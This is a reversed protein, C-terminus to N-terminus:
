ASQKVLRDLMKVLSIRMRNLSASLERIELLGSTSIEKKLNGTSMSEAADILDRVPRTVGMRIIFIGAVTMLVGLVVALIQVKLILGIKREAEAQFLFVARDMANMLPVNKAIVFDVAYRDKGDSDLVKRTHEKFPRWLEVVRELQARIVDTGAPPTQRFRTMELNIPAPGGDKLAFLGTEFVRMTTLIEERLKELGQNRGRETMNAFILVDKSLKQTLMRQIGSVNVLLGDDRQTRTVVITTALVAALLVIFLAFGAVIRGLITNFM